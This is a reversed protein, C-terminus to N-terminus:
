DWLLLLDPSRDVYKRFFPELGDAVWIPAGSFHEIYVSSSGSPVAHLGFCQSSILFDAFLLLESNSSKNEQVTRELSWLTFLGPAM